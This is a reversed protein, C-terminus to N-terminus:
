ALGQNIYRHATSKELRRLASPSLFMNHKTIIENISLAPTGNNGSNNNKISRQFENTALKLREKFRVDYYKKNDLKNKNLPNVLKSSSKCSNVKKPVGNLNM